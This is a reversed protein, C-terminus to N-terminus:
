PLFVRESYRGFGRWYDWALTSDPSVFIDLVRRTGNEIFLRAGYHRWGVPGLRRVRYPVEGITQLKIEPVGDPFPLDGPPYGRPDPRLPPESLGFATAVQTYAVQDAAVLGASAVVSGVFCRGYIVPVAAGQQAVNDAGTFAYSESKDDAEKDKDKGPPNLLYSIGWTAASIVLGIAIQIAITTLTAPDAGAARPVFHVERSVPLRIADPGERWDGDVLIGYAQEKLFERRFDPFNASLARIAEVPTGVAFYHRPGFREALAGYLGVEVLPEGSM